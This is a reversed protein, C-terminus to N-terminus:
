IVIEFFQCLIELFQSLIEFFQSLIESFQFFFNQKSPGLVRGYYLPDVFFKIKPESILMLEQATIERYHTADFCFYDKYCSLM